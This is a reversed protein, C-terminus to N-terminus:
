CSAILTLQGKAELWLPCRRVFCSALPRKARTAGSNARAMTREREYGARKPALPLERESKLASEAMNKMRVKLMAEGDEYFSKEISKKFPQAPPYTPLCPLLPPALGVNVDTM